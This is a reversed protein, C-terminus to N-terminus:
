TMLIQTIRAAQASDMKALLSAAAAPQMYYIITALEMPQYIEVMIDAAATPDMKSYIAGVKKLETLKEESLAARMEQFTGAPDTAPSEVTQTNTGTNVTPAEPQVTTEPLTMDGQTDTAQTPDTQTADTQTTDIQTTGTVARLAPPVPIGLKELVGFRVAVLFAGALVLLAILILPLKSKKHKTRKKREKQKKAPPIPDDKRPSMNEEFEKHPDSDQKDRRREKTAGIAM